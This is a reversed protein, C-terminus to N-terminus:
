VPRRTPAVLPEFLCHGWVGLGIPVLGVAAVVIGGSGGLAFLGYVILAIGLLVRVSRGIAGNMFEVINTM